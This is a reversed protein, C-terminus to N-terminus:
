RSGAKFITTRPFISYADWIRLTDNRISYGWTANLEPLIVINFPEDKIIQITLQQKVEKNIDKLELLGNEHFEYYYTTGLEQSTLPEGRTDFTTLEWRWEGYIDSRNRLEDEQCAFILM